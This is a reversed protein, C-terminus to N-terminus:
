QRSKGYNTTGNVREKYRSFDGLFLLIKQASILAMSLLSGSKPCTPNALYTDLKFKYTNELLTLLTLFFATGEEILNLMLKKYEERQEDDRAIAERLIEIINYFAVKWCHQEINQQECFKLDTELLVKLHEQQQRRLDSINKWDEILNRNSLLYQLSLDNREVEILLLPNKASRLSFFILKVCDFVLWLADLLIYSKSWNRKRILVMGRRGM